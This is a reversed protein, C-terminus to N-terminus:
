HRWQRANLPVDRMPVESILWPRATSLILSPYAPIAPRREGGQGSQM